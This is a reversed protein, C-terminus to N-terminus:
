SIFSLPLAPLMFLFLGILAALVAHLAPTKIKRLLHRTRVGLYDGWFLIASFAGCFFGIRNLVLVATSADKVELTLSLGILVIYGALAFVTKVPDGSRIGPPLFRRRDMKVEETEKGFADELMEGVSAYRQSPDMRTAKEVISGIHGKAATESPLVGTVMVNLLVGLAYIDTQVGSGGFGYQEPAAYGATGILVTDRSLGPEYPKAASIDTLFVNGDTGIIINDPKIDRHIVAPTRSHLARVAGAVSRFVSLAFEGSLTHKEEILNGLTRGNIFEEILVTQEGLATVSFIRPMGPVHDRVFSECVDRRCVELTKKVFLEGTRDDRVLQVTGDDKLPYLERYRSLHARDDFVSM